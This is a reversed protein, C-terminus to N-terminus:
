KTEAFIIRLEIWKESVAMVEVSKVNAGPFTTNNGTQIANFKRGELADLTIITSYTVGAKFKSDSTLNAAVWDGCNLQEFWALTSNPRVGADNSMSSIDLVGSDGVLVVDSAKRGAFPIKLIDADIAAISLPYLPPSSLNYEIRFTVSSGRNVVSDSVLSAGWPLFGYMSTRHNMFSFDNIANLTILTSYKAAKFRGEVDFRGVTTWKGATEIEWVLETNALRVNAPLAAQIARIAKDNEVPREGLVPTTIALASFTTANAAEPGAKDFIAVVKLTKDVGAGHRATLTGGGPGPGPLNISNAPLDKFTWGDRATLTIQVAYYKTYPLGVFVDLNADAFPDVLKYFNEIEEATITSGSVPVERYLLTRTTSDKGSSTYQPNIFDEIGFAPFLNAAPIQVGKILLDSVVREGAVAPFDIKVKISDMRAPEDQSSDSSPIASTPTSITVSKEPVGNVTFFTSNSTTPLGGAVKKFSYGPKATLLVWQSYTKKSKFYGDFLEHPTPNTVKYVSGDDASGDDVFSRTVTYQETEGIQKIDVPIEKGALPYEIGPIAKISVPATATKWTQVRLVHTEGNYSIRKASLEAKNTTTSNQLSTVILNTLNVSDPDTDDIYNPAKPDNVFSQNYKTGEFTYGDGPALTIDAFYVTNPAFVEGESMTVWKRDNSEYVWKLSASIQAAPSTTVTNSVVNGRRPATGKITITGTGVPTPAKPYAVKFTLNGNADIVAPDVTSGQPKPSITFPGAEEFTYGKETYLTVTAFYVDASFTAPLIIPKSSITGKRWEIFGHYQASTGTTEPIDVGKVPMTIKVQTDTVINGFKKFTYVVTAKGTPNVPDPIYKVDKQIGNVKWGSDVAALTYGADSNPTVTITATYEEDEKFTANAALVKGDKDKYSVTGFFQPNQTITPSATVGQSPVTVGTINKSTVNGIGTPTFVAKFVLKGNVVRGRLSVLQGPVESDEPNTQKPIDTGSADALWWNGSVNDGVVATINSFTYGTNPTLEITATYSTLPEFERPDGDWSLNAKFQVDNKITLSPVPNGTPPTINPAIVNGIHVPLVDSNDTEPSNDNEFDCGVAMMTFVLALAPIGLWLNKKTM